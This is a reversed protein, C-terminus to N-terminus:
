TSALGQLNQCFPQLAPVKMSYNQELQCSYVLKARYYSIAKFEIFVFQLLGFIVSFICEKKSYLLQRHSNLLNQFRVGVPVKSTRSSLQRNNYVIKIKNSQSSISNAFDKKGYEKKTTHYSM